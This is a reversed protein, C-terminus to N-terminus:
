LKFRWHKTAKQKHRASVERVTCPLLPPFFLPLPARQRHVATCPCLMDLLPLPFAPGAVGGDDEADGDDDKVEEDNDDDDDGGACCNGGVGGVMSPRTHLPVLGGMLSLPFGRGAWPGAVDGDDEAAGAGAMMVPNSADGDDEADDDDGNDDDNDDDDDGNDDDNDDDDDGDDGDGDDDDADAAPDGDDDEGASLL